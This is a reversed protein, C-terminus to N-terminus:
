RCHRVTAAMRPAHPAGHVLSEAVLMSSDSGSVAELKGYDM